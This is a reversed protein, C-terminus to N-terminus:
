FNIVKEFWKELYHNQNNTYYLAWIGALYLINLFLLMILDSRIFEYETAHAAYAHPRPQVGNFTSFRKHKQSM